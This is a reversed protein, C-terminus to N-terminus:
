EGGIGLPPVFRSQHAVAQSQVAPSPGLVNEGFFVGAMLASLFFTLAAATYSVEHRRRLRRRRTVPRAVQVVVAPKGPVGALADFASAELPTIASKTPAPEIWALGEGVFRGGAEREQRLPLPEPPLAVLARLAEEHQPDLSLVQYLAARKAEVDTQLSALLLWAEGDIPEEALALRLRHEAAAYRGHGVLVRAEAVRDPMAVIRGQDLSV